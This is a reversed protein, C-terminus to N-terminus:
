KMFEIKFKENDDKFSKNADDLKQKWEVIVPITPLHKLLTQVNEMEDVFVKEDIEEKHKIQM